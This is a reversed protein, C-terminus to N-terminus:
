PALRTPGHARARGEATVVAVVSADFRSECVWRHVGHPGSRHCCSEHTGEEASRHSRGHLSVRWIVPTAAGVQALGFVVAFAPLMTPLRIARRRSPFSKGLWVGSYASLEREDSSARPRTVSRRPEKRHPRRRWLRRRFRETKWVGHCEIHLLLPDRKDYYLLEYETQSQLIPTECAFCPKGSGAGAWLKLP